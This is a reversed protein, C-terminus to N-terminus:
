SYIFFKFDIFSKIYAEKNRKVTNATHIVNSATEWDKILENNKSFIDIRVTSLYVRYLM